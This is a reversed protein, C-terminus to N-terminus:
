WFDEDAPFADAYDAGWEPPVPQGDSPDTCAFAFAQGATLPVAQGAVLRWTRVTLAGPRRGPSQASDALEALNQALPRTRLVLTAPREALQAIAMAAWLLQEPGDDPFAVLEKTRVIPLVYSVQDEPLRVSCTLTHHGPEARRTLPAFVATATDLARSVAQQPDSHLEAAQKLLPLLTAQDARTDTSARLQAVVRGIPEGEWLRTHPGIRAVFDDYSRVTQPLGAPEGIAEAYSEYQDPLFPGVLVQRGIQHAAAMRSQLDALYTGYDGRNLDPHRSVLDLYDCQHVIVAFGRVRVM